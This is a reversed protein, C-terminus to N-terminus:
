PTWYLLFGMIHPIHLTTMLKSFCRSSERLHYCGRADVGEMRKELTMSKKQVDSVTEESVSGSMLQADQAALGTGQTGKRDHLQARNSHDVRCM